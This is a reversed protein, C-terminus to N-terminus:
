RGSMEPMESKYKYYVAFIVEPGFQLIPPFQFQEAPLPLM